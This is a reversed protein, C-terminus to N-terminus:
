ALMSRSGFGTESLGASHQWATVAARTAPGFIGDIIATPPLFARTQLAKQISVAEEPQLKAEELAVGIARSLLEQRKYEYQGKLCSVERPSPTRGLSGSKAISCQEVVANAHTNAEIALSRRGQEDLSSMLAQYSIVYSLEVYALENSSCIIQAAPQNAVLASNCDFSPGIRQQAVVVGTVALSAVFAALWLLLLRSWISM